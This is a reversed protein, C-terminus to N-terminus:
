LKYAIHLLYSVFSVGGPQRKEIAEDRSVLTVNLPSYREAVIDGPLVSASLAGALSLIIPVIISRM